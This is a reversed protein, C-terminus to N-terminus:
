EARFCISMMTSFDNKLLGEEELQQIISKKVKIEKTVFDGEFVGNKNLLILLQQIQKTTLPKEFYIEDRSEVEAFSGQSFLLGLIILGTLPKM